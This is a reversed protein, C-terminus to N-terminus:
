APPVAPLLSRGRLLPIPSWPRWRAGAWGFLLAFGLMAALAASFAELSGLGPPPVGFPLENPFPTTPPLMDAEGLGGASEGPLTRTWTRTSADSIPVMARDGPSEIPDAPTLSGPATPAVETIPAIVDTVPAIVDTVPAIVDTVPAVVDTVPDTLPGLTDTVPQAVDLVPQTVPGVLDIVPGAVPELAEAADAVVPKAVDVVPDTVPKATDVVPDTVPKATDVVPQVTEAAKQIVPAATKAVTDSTQSVIPDTTKSVPETVTTTTDSVTTGAGARPVLDDAYVAVASGLTLLAAFGFARLLTEIGIRPPIQM